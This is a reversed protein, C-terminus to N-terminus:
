VSVERGSPTITLDGSSTTALDAYNTASGNSDNYTLRLNAGTSSNIELAKDPATTGLGVNGSGDIVLRYNSNDSIGLKGVLSSNGIRWTKPNSAYTDQIILDIFKQSSDGSIHLSSSPSTTGIGVNGNEFIAAYNNSGGSATAYLGVNTSTGTHTNSLYAGYTTQAGTANTGSLSINLGKQGTLGATGTIALDILSGSTLSSSAAYFGTGTTLSNVNLALASSTTTQTTNSSTISVNGTSALGVTNAMGAITLVGASTIKNSSSYFQIDGTVGSQLTLTNSGTVRLGPNTDGLVLSGSTLVPIQSGTASQAPTFGGVTKSNIAFASSVIQQRPTLTEFSEDGSTCSGAGIASVEVNMFAQDDTFALTLADGGASVDGVPADFVGERTLITMTSPSGAPWIKSGGSAADYISFKYCYNTGSAGGLLNGSSNLLRGQFNIIKPVGATAYVFNSFLTNLLFSFLFFVVFSIAITSKKKGKQKKRFEM